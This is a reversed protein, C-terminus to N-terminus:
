YNIDDPTLVIFHLDYVVGLGYITTSERNGYFKKATKYITNKTRCTNNARVYVPLTTRGINPCGCGGGGEVAGGGGEGRSSTGTRM